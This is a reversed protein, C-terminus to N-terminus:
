AVGVGAGLMANYTDLFVQGARQLSFREEAAVRGAQGMRRRLGPDEMLHRMAAALAQDDGVPTLLGTEGERVSTAPGGCRTSVVALGSAMAELVVIGLGEEDSSLVFFSAGRYAEQLSQGDLPGVYRVRDGLGQQRVWAQVSPLPPEGVLYLEPASPAERVLRAYARLLMRANKREDTYRGVSLIYGDAPRSAPRFAETDVGCVAVASRTPPVRHRIAELTYESLAFVFDARDLARHEYIRAIRSMAMAWLRRKLPARRVRSVRDAWLTTATWLLLRPGVGLGAAAWAPIGTVFQVLDYRRLLADLERRRRYRQFELETLFAGVHAYSVGRRERGLVKVGRSWSAPARLRVSAPDSASTALSVVAPQFRRSETLVRHLFATMTATGGGTSLDHTVLAVKAVM